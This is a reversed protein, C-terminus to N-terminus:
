HGHSSDFPNGSGFQAAALRREFQVTLMAMGPRSVSVIHKVGELESLVLEAPTSVLNEVQSVSAGPFPIFVNAFTVDIQPEEEKPTIMVAMVGLFVAILALLPTLQSYQFYHAITGAIGRRRIKSM